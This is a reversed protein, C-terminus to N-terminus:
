TGNTSKALQRTYFGLATKTKTEQAADLSVGRGELYERCEAAVQWANAPTAKTSLELIRSGDPYLWMEAVIARDPDSKKKGTHAAFVGKLIFTPGLPVLEDMSLGDPAHDKYFARQGKSFLKSLRKNKAVAESIDQGTSKGKFSASCVFGGPLVDVEVKVMPNSRLDKPLDSPVVPRLKVVTDGKGGQVRRARVVLGVKNLDLDPTDFFFIQRPQAEVPDLPLGQVTSRHANAPVSVKLEVSNAGQMLSMLETLQDDSLRRAVRRAENMDTM